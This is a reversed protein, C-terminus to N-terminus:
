GLPLNLEDPPPSIPRPAPRRVVREKIEVDAASVSPQAPTVASTGSVSLVPPPTEMHRQIMPGVVLLGLALSAAAVSGLVLVVVPWRARRAGNMAHTNPM